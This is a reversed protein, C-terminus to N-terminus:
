CLLQQGLEMCRLRELLRKCCHAPWRKRGSLRTSDSVFDCICGAGGGKPVILLRHLLLPEAHLLLQPLLLLLLLRGKVPAVILLQSPFIPLLLLLFPDEPSGKGRM